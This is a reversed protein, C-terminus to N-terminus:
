VGSFNTDYNLAYRTKQANLSKLDLDLFTTEGPAITLTQNAYNSNTSELTYNLKAITITANGIRGSLTFYSYTAGTFLCFGAIFIMVAFYATQTKDYYKIRRITNKFLRFKKKNQM